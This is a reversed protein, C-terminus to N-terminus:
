TRRNLEDAFLRLLPHETYRGPASETVLHADALEDLLRRAARVPVDALAAATEATLEPGTGASMRFLRAADTPLRRYSGAFATRVDALADLGAGRRLEAAVSALPGAAATRALALPLRGCRVVIEEAAEAEAPTRARGTHRVLIELADAPSPLTLRLPRAGAAVLGSLGRRSTILTLCGPSAPLLPRVQETDLADDLLVLMRRGALTSRYLGALADPGGPLRHEPVGLAILLARLAAEPTLPDELPDFGRLDLHLQGDPCRAAAEHAWRVALATKGIGPM